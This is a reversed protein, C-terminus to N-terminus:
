SCVNVSISTREPLISYFDTLVRSSSMSLICGGAGDHRRNCSPASLCLVLFVSSAGWSL